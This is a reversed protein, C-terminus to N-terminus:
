VESVAKGVWRGPFWWAAGSIQRTVAGTGCALDLIVSTHPDIRARELIHGLSASSYGGRYDDYTRAYGPTIKHWHLGSMTGKKGRRINGSKLNHAHM